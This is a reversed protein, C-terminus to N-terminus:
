KELVEKLKAGLAEGRLDSAIIEGKPNLMINSPISNIGYIDAAACQWGKLDSIQPWTLGLQKIANVWAKRDKDFSVGVIEFNSGGYKKYCAVLNPMERRCPGCWSAWFDVLVYKGQGAWQSLSAVDGDPDGMELDTFMLGNARKALAALMSEAKSGLPHQLFGAGSDILQKLEDYGMSYMLESFALAGIADNSHEKLAKHWVQEQMSETTAQGMEKAVESLQQNILSGTTEDTIMNLTVETGKSDVIFYSMLNSGRDLLMFVTQDDKEGKVQFHGNNVGLTIPKAKRHALDILQVEKSDAKTTGNLTYKVQAMMTASLLMMAAIVYLKKM